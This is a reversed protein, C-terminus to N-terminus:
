ESIDDGIDFTGVNSISEEALEEENKDQDLEFPFIRSMMKQSFNFGSEVATKLDEMANRPTNRTFKWSVMKQDISINYFDSLISTMRMLASTFLMETEKSSSELRLLKQQIQFATLAKDAGMEDPNYSNSYKYIRAELDVKLNEVATSNLNKEIFKGDGIFIGTRKLTGLWEEDIDIEDGSISLYSLRLQSIESSIDSDAIDYADQLSTTLEVDGIRETNNAFEILPVQNFLHEMPEKIDIQGWYGCFPIVVSDSYLEGSVYRSEDNDPESNDETRIDVWYRVGYVPVGSLRDYLVFCGWDSPYTIYVDSVGPPSSLLMYGAGRGAAKQALETIGQDFGHSYVIDLLKEQTSEDGEIVIEPSIGVMYSAKQMAIVRDFPTHLKHNEKSSSPATRAFIPVGDAERPDDWKDTKASVLSSRNFLGTMINNRKRHIEIAVSLAKSIFGADIASILEAQVQKSYIDEIYKIDNLGM